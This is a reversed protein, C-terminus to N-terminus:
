REVRRMDPLDANVRDWQGWVRHIRRREPWTLLVARAVIGAVVVKEAHWTPWSDETSLILECGDIAEVRYVDGYGYLSAHYKAYDRETTAYVHPHAALPDLTATGDARAQCFTCGDHARRQHEGDLVDGVRLGPVGGHFLRPTNM